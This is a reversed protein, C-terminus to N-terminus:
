LDSPLLLFLLPTWSLSALLTPHPSHSKFPFLLPTSRFSCVAQQTSHQQCPWDLLIPSTRRCQHIGPPQRTLLLESPTSPVSTLNAHITSAPSITFSSANLLFTAMFPFLAIVKQSDGFCKHSMVNKFVCYHKKKLTQTQACTHETMDPEKLPSYGALSRQGHFKEPLFVSTPQWKRSCPIKRVWPDFRQRKNEGANVPLNKRLLSM